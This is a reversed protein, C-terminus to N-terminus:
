VDTIATWDLTSTNDTRTREYLPTTGDDAMITLVGTSKAFSTVNTLQKVAKTLAASVPFVDCLYVTVDVSVDAANPSLLKVIVEKNAPVLFNYTTYCASTGSSAVQFYEPDTALVVGGITITVEFDGGTGDLTHGVEDGVVLHAQCLTADSASPTHTLCTVPTSGDGYIDRDANESDLLPLM